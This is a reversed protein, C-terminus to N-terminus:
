LCATSAIMLVYVRSIILNLNRPKIIKGDTLFAFVAVIIVLGLLPLLNRVAPKEFFSKFKNGSAETTVKEATDTM